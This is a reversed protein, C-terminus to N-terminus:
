NRVVVMISAKIEPYAASQAIVEYVGETNPAVYMGNQDIEGGNESVVSWRVTKNTMNTCVADLYKSERPKLVLSSPKITLRMSRKEVAAEDVDRIATWKIDIYDALITSKTMVGIVFSGKTPSLKVATDFMPISESFINSAGYIVENEATPVGLIVTVSGLGLGHVIEDSFYVNNKYSGATLNIRCVGSAIENARAAPHLEGSHGGEQVMVAGRNQSTLKDMSRLLTQSPVYQGFPINEVNEIIISGGAKVLDIRALYLRQGLTGRLVADMGQRYAAETIVDAIDRLTVSVTNKGGIEGEAPVKDYSLTFTTPDIMAVGDTDVVDSACVNYILTYKGTKEFLMEDFVVKLISGADSVANLCDLQIDYSFAAYRKTFVEIEVTLEFSEDPHVYRPMIHRIRMNEDRFVTIKREFLDGSNIMEDDPEENTLYLNYTERIKDYYTKGPESAVNHSEDKEAESYELCLYAYSEGGGLATDYGNILSLKKTVPADIVVERGTPDFAMGCDITLTQEDLQTVNLGSVVGVGHILRNAIRRKDNMYKQEANFDEVSLLKGYYYKNREFPYLKINNM